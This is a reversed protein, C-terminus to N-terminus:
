PKFAFSPEVLMHVKFKRIAASARKSQERAAALEDVPKAPEQALLPTLMAAGAVQRRTLGPKNQKM